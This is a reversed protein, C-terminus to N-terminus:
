CLWHWALWREAEERINIFLIAFIVRVLQIKKSECTGRVIQACRFQITFSLILLFGHIFFRFAVM